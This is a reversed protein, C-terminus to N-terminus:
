SSISRWRATKPRPQLNRSRDFRCFLTESSFFSLGRLIAAEIGGWKPKCDVLGVDCACNHDRNSLICRDICTTVALQVKDELIRFVLPSWRCLRPGDFLLPISVIRTDSAVFLKVATRQYPLHLAYHPRRTSFLMKWETWLKTGEYFGWTHHGLYGNTCFLAYFTM